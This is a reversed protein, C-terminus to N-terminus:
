QQTEFRDHLKIAIGSYPVVGNSTYIFCGGWMGGVCGKPTRKVPYATPIIEGFLHREKIYVANEPTNEDEECSWLVVENFRASIGNNSANGIHKDEYVSMTGLSKGM